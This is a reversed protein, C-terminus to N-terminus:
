PHPRQRQRVSGGRWRRTIPLNPWVCTTTSTTRTLAGLHTSKSASGEWVKELRTPRSTSPWCVRPMGPYATFALLDNESRIHPM